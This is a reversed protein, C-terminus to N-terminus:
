KQVRGRSSHSQPASGPEAPPRPCQRDAEWRAVRTPARLDAQRLSAQSASETMRNIARASLCGGPVTRFLAMKNDWGYKAAAQTVIKMQDTSDHIRKVTKYVDMTYDKAVKVDDRTGTFGLHGGVLVDFDYELVKDFM